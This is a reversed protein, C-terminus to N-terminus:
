NVLPYIKSTESKVLVWRVARDWPHWPVCTEPRRPLVHSPRFTFRRGQSRHKKCFCPSKVMVFHPQLHNYGKSAHHIQYFKLVVTKKKEFMPVTPFQSRNEIPGVQSTPPCSPPDPQLISWHAGSLPQHPTSLGKIWPEMDEHNWIWRELRQIYKLNFMNVRCFSAGKPLSVYSHFFM